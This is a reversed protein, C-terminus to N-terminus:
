YGLAVNFITQNVYNTFVDARLQWLKNIPNAWVFTALSYKIPLMTQLKCCNVEDSGDICDNDGDCRYESPICFGNYPCRIDGSEVDCITDNGTCYWCDLMATMTHWKCCDSEDTGDRCDISGDCRRDKVLCRPHTDNCAFHDDPCAVPPFLCLIYCGDMM